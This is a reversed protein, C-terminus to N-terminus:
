AAIELRRDSWIEETSVNEDASQERVSETYVGENIDSM